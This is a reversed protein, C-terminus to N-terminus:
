RLGNWVAVSAVQQAAEPLTLDTERRLREVEPWLEEMRNGLGAQWLQHRADQVAIAASLNAMAAAAHAFTIGASNLARTFARVNATIRVFVSQRRRRLRRYRRPDLAGGVLGAYLPRFTPQHSAGFRAAMVGPRPM